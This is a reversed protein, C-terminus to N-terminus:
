SREVSHQDGDTMLSIAFGSSGVDGDLKAEDQGASRMSLTMVILFEGERGWYQLRDKIKIQPSKKVGDNTSVSWDM